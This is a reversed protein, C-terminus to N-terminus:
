AGSELLSILHTTKQLAAGLRRRARREGDSRMAMAVNRGGRGGQRGGRSRERSIEGGRASGGESAEFIDEGRARGEVTEVVNAERGMVKAGGVLDATGDPFTDEMIGDNGDRAFLASGLVETVGEPFNVREVMSVKNSEEATALLTIVKVKNILEDLSGIQSVAQAAFM